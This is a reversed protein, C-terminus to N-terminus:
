GTRHPVWGHVPNRERSPHPHLRASTYLLCVWFLGQGILAFISFQSYDVARDLGPVGQAKMEGVLKPGVYLRAETVAQQGPAVNVGPGIERSDRICM